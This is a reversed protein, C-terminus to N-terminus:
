SYPVLHTRPQILENFALTAMMYFGTLQNASCVLQSTEIHNCSQRKILNSHETHSTLLFREIVKDGFLQAVWPVKKRITLNFDFNSFM